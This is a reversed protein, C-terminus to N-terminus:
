LYLQHLVVPGHCPAPLLPLPGWPGWVCVMLPLRLRRLAREEEDDVVHLGEGYNQGRGVAECQRLRQESGRTHSHFHISEIKDNSYVVWEVGDPGPRHCRVVDYGEMDLQAQTISSDGEPGVDKVKNYRIVVRLIVGHRRAKRFTAEPTSALYIGGGVLGSSGTIMRMSRLISEASEPDTQHYGTFSYRGSM